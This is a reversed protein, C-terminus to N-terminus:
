CCDTVAKTFNTDCCADIMKKRKNRKNEEACLKIAPFYARIFLYVSVHVCPYVSIRACQYVSVSICPYVSASIPM